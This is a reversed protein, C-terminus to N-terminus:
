DIAGATPGAASSPEFRRKRALQTYFCGSFEASLPTKRGRGRSNIALAAVMKKHVVAARPVTEVVACDTAVSAADRQVAQGGSAMRQQQSQVQGVGAAVDTGGGDIVVEQIEISDAAQAQSRSLKLQSPKGRLMSRFFASTAQLKASTAQLKTLRQQSSEHNESSDPSYPRWSSREVVAAAVDGIASVAEVLKAAASENRASDVLSISASDAAGSTKFGVSAAASEHFPSSTKEHQSAAATTDHATTQLQPQGADVVNEVDDGRMRSRSRSRGANCAGSGQATGSGAPCYRGVDCSGSGQATSSGSPCYRGADCAGSGQATSSGLSCYRGANCPNISSDGPCYSGAPCRHCVMAIFSNATTTPSVPCNRDVGKGTAVSLTMTRNAFASNYQSATLERSAYVWSCDAGAVTVIISGEMTVRIWEFQTDPTGIDAYAAFMVQMPTATQDVPTASCGVAAAFTKGTNSIPVTYYQSKCAYNAVPCSLTNQARSLTALDFLAVAFALSLLSGWEPRRMEDNMMVTLINQIAEARTELSCLRSWREGCV